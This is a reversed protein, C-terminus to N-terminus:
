TNVLLFHISIGYNVSKLDPINSKRIAEKHRMIRMILPNDTDLIFVPKPASGKAIITNVLDLQFLLAGTDM